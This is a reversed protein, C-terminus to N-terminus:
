SFISVIWHCQSCALRSRIEPKNRHLRTGPSLRPEFLFLPILSVSMLVNATPCKSFHKLEGLLWPLSSYFDTCLYFPLSMFFCTLVWLDVIEGISRDFLALLLCRLCKIRFEQNTNVAYCFLFICWFDYLSTEQDWRNEMEMAFMMKIHRRQEHLPNKQLTGM